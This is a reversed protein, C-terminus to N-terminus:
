VSLPLDPLASQSLVAGRHLTGRLCRDSQGRLTHGTQRPSLIRNAGPMILESLSLWGSFECYSPAVTALKVDRRPCGFSALLALCGYWLCNHCCSLGGPSLTFPPTLSACSVMPKDEFPSGQLKQLAITATQVNEFVIFAQGRRAFSKMAVIDLVQPGFRALRHPPAHGVAALSCLPFVRSCGFACWACCFKFCYCSVGKWVALVLGQSRSEAGQGKGKREPQESHLPPATAPYASPVFYM